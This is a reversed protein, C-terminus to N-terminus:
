AEGLFSPRAGSVLFRCPYKTKKTQNTNNLGLVASKDSQKNYKLKGVQLVM